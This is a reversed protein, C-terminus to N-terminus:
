AMCGGGYIIFPTVDSFESFSQLNVHIPTASHIIRSEEAKM